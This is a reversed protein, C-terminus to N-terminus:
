GPKEARLSLLGVPGASRTSTGSGVGCESNGITARAAQQNTIWDVNKYQLMKFTMPGRHQKGLGAEYGVWLFRNLQCHNDWGSGSAGEPGERVKKAASNLRHVFDGLDEGVNKNLGMMIRIMHNQTMKLQQHATPHWSGSCWFLTARVVTALHQVRKKINIQQRCLIGKNAYFAGWAKKSRLASEVGDSCDFIFQTGLVEFGV